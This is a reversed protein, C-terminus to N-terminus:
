ISGLRTATVYGPDPQPNLTGGMIFATEDSPDGAHAAGATTVSALSLLGASCAAPLAVILRRCVRLTM